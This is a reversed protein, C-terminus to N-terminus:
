NSFSENIEHEILVVEYPVWLDLILQHKLSISNTKHFQRTM